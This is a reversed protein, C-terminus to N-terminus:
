EKRAYKELDVNEYVKLRDVSEGGVSYVYENNNLTIRKIIQEGNLTFAANKEGDDFIGVSVSSRSVAVILADRCAYFSIECSASKFGGQENKKFDLKSLSLGLSRELAYSLLSLIGAGAREGFKEVSSLLETSSVGSFAPLQGEPLSAIYVDLIPMSRFMARVDDAQSCSAVGFVCENAFHECNNYLINYGRMGLKARAYEIIKKEGRSKKKEKRELEGVELFGGVLFADIDSAIVEIESDKLTLRQSPAPGFQIVEDDSVYIGYHYIDGLKVRVMDSPRPEKLLWKM